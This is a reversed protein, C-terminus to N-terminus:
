SGPTAREDHDVSWKWGTRRAAPIVRDTCDWALVAESFKIVKDGDSLDEGLVHKGRLVGDFDSVGVMAARAPNAGTFRPDTPM